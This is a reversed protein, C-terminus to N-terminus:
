LPRRTLSGVNADPVSLWARGAQLLSNTRNVGRLERLINSRDLLRFSIKSLILVKLGHVGNVSLFNRRIYLPRHFAM